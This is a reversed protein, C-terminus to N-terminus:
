RTYSVQNVYTMLLMSKKLMEKMKPENYNNITGKNLLLGDLIKIYNEYLQLDNAQIITSVSNKNNGEKFRFKYKISNNTNYKFGFNLTNNSISDNLFIVIEDTKCYQKVSSNEMNRYAKGDYPKGLFIFTEDKM